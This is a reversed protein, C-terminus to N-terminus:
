ARIIEVTGADGDVKVRDGTRIAMVPNTDLDTVAPLKLVAATLAIQPNSKVVVYAIPGTGVVGLAQHWTSWSSSGKASRFVLVKGALSVGKLPHNEEVVTGTDVDFAGYGGMAADTVLAEGEVCGGHVKRGKLIVNSM